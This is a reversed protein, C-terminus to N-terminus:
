PTEIESLSRLFRKFGRTNYNAMGAHVTALKGDPSIVWTTPLTPSRYLPPMPGVVRYVPFTYEKEQVFRRAVDVDDDTSITIFAIGEDGLDEYLKQIYPMEALCPACWTAWLNLFITRGRFSEMHVPEGDLPRLTLDYSAPEAEEEAWVTEAQFLGTALVGQQMWGLVVTGQDTFRLFALLAIILGWELATRGWRRAPTPNTDDTKGPALPADNAPTM